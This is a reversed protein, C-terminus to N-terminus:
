KIYETLKERYNIGPAHAGRAEAKGWLVYPTAHALLRKLALVEQPLVHPHVGRAPAHAPTWPCAAACRGGGEVELAVDEGERLLAGVGNHPM